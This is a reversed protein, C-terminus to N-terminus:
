GDVFLDSAISDAILKGSNTLYLRSGILDALKLFTIKALYDKHISMVDIGYTAHLWALDCGWCTRITTMIYENIHNAQTLTEETYPLLGQQIAQAYRANNAVNWQRQLGNYGHAGPGIGIYPGAKWYNTNHRAYQEPKCFNSIEYHIYGKKTCTESVLEFQEASIAEDIEIVKGQKHWYGFVTKPKITLCYASIHAPEFSLAKTVDNYWDLTTTGPIAYMLDINLNTFGAVDAWVLSKQAMHSTHVRNMYRLIEDNFSQIGISLRNIGMTHWQKLKEVTLDDPNAELTIEAGPVLTFSQLVQNLLHEIEKFTLLSPTGGGFYISAIPMGQLYNQRLIIEKTMSDLVLAKQQLNTSFHFNCYHCAQKCFPVHLYIGAHAQEAQKIFRM